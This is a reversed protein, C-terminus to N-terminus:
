KGASCVPYENAFSSVTQSMWLAILDIAGISRGDDFLRYRWVGGRRRFPDADPVDKRPQSSRTSNNGRRGEMPGVVTVNRAGAAAAYTLADAASMGLRRCTLYAGGFCDGAGTPDIEAVIFAPADIREGERNYYTAGDAGRKLVIEKVGIEFLRRIANTEGEVGAARELEERLAAASRGYGRAPCVATRDGRRAQTGKRINPDVSLTGGRTKVIDVAKDIVECASPVSLASGM